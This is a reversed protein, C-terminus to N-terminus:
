IAHEELAHNGVANPFHYRKEPIRRDHSRFAGFAVIRGCLFRTDHTATQMCLCLSIIHGVDNKSHVCTLIVCTFYREIGPRKVCVEKVASVFSRRRDFDCQHLAVIPLGGIYDLSQRPSLRLRYPARFVPCRAFDPTHTILRNRGYYKCNSILIWTTKIFHRPPSPNRPCRNTVLTLTASYFKKKKKRKKKTAAEGGM